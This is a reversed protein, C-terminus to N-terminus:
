GLMSWGDMANSPENLGAIKWGLAAAASARPYQLERSSRSADLRQDLGSTMGAAASDARGATPRSSWFEDDRFIQCEIGHDGHGRLEFRFRCDGVTFEYLLEGPQGVSLPPGKLNPKYFPDADNM